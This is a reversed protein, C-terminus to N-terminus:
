KLNSQCTSFKLGKEILKRRIQLLHLMIFKKTLSFNRKRVFFICARPKAARMKQFGIRRAGKDPASDHLMFRIIQTQGALSFNKKNKGRLRAHFEHAAGSGLRTRV